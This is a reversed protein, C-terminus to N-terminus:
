GGPIITSVAPHALPFQLAAAALPVEHRRCVADIRRVREVVEAPAARYNYTAGESAGRALIGSNFPGGVLIGIRQELCLPLLEDLAGQELLTYRGALLMCDLDADRAFRLCPEVENVGIGVAKIV